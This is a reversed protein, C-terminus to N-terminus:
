KRKRKFDKQLQAKRLKEIEQLIKEGQEIWSKLQPLPISTLSCVEEEHDKEEVLEKLNTIGMSKLEFYDTKGIGLRSLNTSLPDESFEYWLLMGCGGLILPVAKLLTLLFTDAFEFEPQAVLFLIGGGTVLGGIIPFIGLSLISGMLGVIGSILILYFYFSGYSFADIILLFSLILSVVSAVKFKM